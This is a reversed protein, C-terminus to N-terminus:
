PQGTATPHQRVLDAEANLRQLEATLHQRTIALERYVLERSHLAAELERADSSPAALMEPTVAVPKKRLVAVGQGTRNPEDVEESPFGEPEISEMEFARGWHARLWWESLYVAPGWSDEFGSGFHEVHMGIRDEDFPAGSSGAVGLGWTGRGHFTAVLLGDDGLVRHLEVLWNAWNDALHSFVSLAFVLDFSASEFPLPPQEGNVLAHIPPSLNETVWDISLRDIDCGWIEAQEAETLLHRLTRGSGCGFDLVRKGEFSWESPVLRLLHTREARGVAEFVGFPDGDPPTGVRLVLDLPPM